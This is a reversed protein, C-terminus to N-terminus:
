RFIPHMSGVDVAEQIASRTGSRVHLLTPGVTQIMRGRSAARAEDDIRCGRIPSFGVEFDVPRVM